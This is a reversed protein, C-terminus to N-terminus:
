NTQSDSRSRPRDNIGWKKLKVQWEDVEFQYYGGGQQYQEVWEVVERIGSYYGGYRAEELAEVLEKDKM